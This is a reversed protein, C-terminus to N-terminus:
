SASLSESIKALSKADEERNNRRYAKALMLLAGQARYKRAEDNPLRDLFTKIATWAAECVAVAADARGAAEYQESLQATWARYGASDPHLHRWVDETVLLAEDNRNAKQLMKIQQRSWAVYQATTPDLSNRVQQHFLIAEQHHGASQHESVISRAWDLTIDSNPGLVTQYLEWNSRQLQLAQEPGKITRYKAVLEKAWVSHEPSRPDLRCLFSEQFQLADQALNASVYTRIASWAFTRAERTLPKVQPVTPKLLQATVRKTFALADDKLNATHYCALLATAWRSPLSAPLLPELRPWLAERLAVSDVPNIVLLQALFTDLTMMNKPGGSAETKFVTRLILRRRANFTQYIAPHTLVLNHLSSLDPSLLLIGHLVDGHLTHLNYAGPPASSAISM